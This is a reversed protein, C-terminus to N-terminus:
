LSFHVLPSLHVPPSPYRWFISHAERCGAQVAEAGAPVGPLFAGSVCLLCPCLACRQSAHSVEANFYLGIGSPSLQFPCPLPLRSLPLVRVPAWAAAVSTLLMRLIATVAVRHLLWTGQRGQRHLFLRWGLALAVLLVAYVLEQPPPVTFWGGMVAAGGDQWSATGEGMLFMLCRSHAAAAGPGEGHLYSNSLVAPSQPQPHASSAFAIASPPHRYFAPHQFRVPLSRSARAPGGHLAWFAPGLCLLPTGHGAGYRLTVSTGVQWTDHPQCAQLSLAHEFALQFFHPSM